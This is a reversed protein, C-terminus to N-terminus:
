FICTSGKYMETLGQRNSARCHHILARTEKDEAVAALMHMGEQDTMNRDMYWLGGHRTGTGFSRATSREQILFVVKDLIIRCDIQDVLASLSVLNVPFTPM